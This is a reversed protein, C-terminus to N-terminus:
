PIVFNIDLRKENNGLQISIADSRRYSGPYYFSVEPRECAGGCSAHKWPPAGPFNIGIVFTGPQLSDFRYFGAKDTKSTHYGQEGKFIIVPIEALPSGNSSRVHGEILAHPSERLKVDWCQGAKIGVTEPDVQFAGSLDAGVRYKGAPLPQFEYHGAEDTTAVFRGKDGGKNDPLREAVVLAHEVSTEDGDVWNGRKIDGRLLGQNSLTRLRRLTEIEEKAFEVPSSRSGYGLL